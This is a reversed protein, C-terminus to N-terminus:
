KEKPFTIHFSTGKENASEFSIKGDIQSSLNKVIQMGLSRNQLDFEGPLGVGDDAVTLTIEDEGEDLSVKISGEERERFAHKYANALLEATMLGVPIARPLSLTVNDAEVEVQIKTKETEHYSEVSEALRPLYRDLEIASGTESQQYLQEHVLAMSQIRSLADKLPRRVIPDESKEMQMYLLGTIVAMNNKVRHHIEELLTRKENLKEELEERYRVEDTVDIVDVFIGYTNGKEDVMPKYVFDMELEYWEEKKTDWLQIAQEEGYFPEGSEYIRDLLDTFGQDVIEPFVEGVTHGIFEKKRFLKRYSENVYTFQHDPGELLCIASPSTHVMEKFKERSEEAKARLTREQELLKRNEEELRKQERIDTYIGFIFKVEGGERVPAGGMLVPIPNEQKDYRVVEEQYTGSLYQETLYEAYKREEETKTLLYDINKDLVEEEEYGFTREFAPNVSKIIGKTDFVAIASPDNQFLQSFKHYESKLKEEAIQRETIDRGVTLIAKENKYQIPTSRLELHRKEGDVREITTPKPPTDEGELVKKMDEQIDSFDPSSKTLDLINKGILYNPDEVGYIEAGAPNVFQITGKEGTSILIVDPDQQVLTAWQQEREEIERRTEVQDTIDNQVGIFHTVEGKNNHIPAIKLDNWFLKGEKTYNRLTIRCSTGQDIAKETTEIGEQDRDNGQLFRCNKGLAEEPPYGTIETFERNVYVIPNDEKRNDTIIIGSNAADMAKRYQYLQDNQRNLRLSDMRLRKLSQMRLDLVKAQIPVEVIEDIAQLSDRSLQQASNKSILMLVPLTLPAQENRIHEIDARIHKWSQQDTICIDVERPNYTEEDVVHFSSDLKDNVLEADRSRYLKLLVNLKAQEDEMSALENVLDTGDM